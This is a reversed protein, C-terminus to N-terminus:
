YPESVHVICKGHDVFVVDILESGVEVAQVGVDIECSLWLSIASQGEYIGAYVHVPNFIM